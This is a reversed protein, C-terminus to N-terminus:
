RNNILGAEIAYKVLGSRKKVGIKEMLRYKYTEITKVSVQMQDAIEANSYGMSILSLVQKEKESLPKQLINQSQPEKRIGTILATGVDSQLFPKGAFVQRIAQFLVDDAAKKLVYGMAGNAFAEKLYHPDEYMTLLIVKLKPWRSSIEKLCDLGSMNPMSVDLLVIDPKISCKELLALAEIGDAAEGLVTMDAQNEMMSKLGSRMLTHDDVIVIKIM